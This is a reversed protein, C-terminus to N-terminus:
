HRRPTRRTAGAPRQPASACANSRDRCFTHFGQAKLAQCAAAGDCAVVQTAALIVMAVIVEAEPPRREIGLATAVNGAAQVTGHLVQRCAQRDRLLAQALQRRLARLAWS